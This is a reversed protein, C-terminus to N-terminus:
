LSIVRHQESVHEKADTIFKQLQYSDELKLKRANTLDELREWNDLAEKQKQEIGPGM